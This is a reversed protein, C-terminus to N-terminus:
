ASGSQNFWQLIYQELRNQFRFNGLSAAFLAELNGTPLSGSCILKEMVPHENTWKTQMSHHKTYSILIGPDLQFSAKRMSARINELDAVIEPYFNDDFSDSSKVKYKNHSM